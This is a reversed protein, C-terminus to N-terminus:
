WLMVATQLNMIINSHFRSIQKSLNAANKKISLTFHIFPTWDSMLLPSQILVIRIHAMITQINQKKYIVINKDSSFFIDSTFYVGCM